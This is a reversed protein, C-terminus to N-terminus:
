DAPPHGKAPPSVLGALDDNAGERMGLVHFVLDAPLGESALESELGSSEFDVEGVRPNDKAVVGDACQRGQAPATKGGGEKSLAGHAGTAQLVADSTAPM